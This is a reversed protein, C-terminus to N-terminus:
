RKNPQLEGFIGVIQTAFPADQLVEIQAYRDWGEGYVRADELATSPERTDMPTAPTRDSPREGNILPLISSALRAFVRIYRKQIGQQSGWQAGGELPLTLMKATYKPGATVTNGPSQLTITGGIVQVDPHTADDVTVGVTMGELHAFGPINDQIGVGAVTVHGDLYHAASYREVFKAPGGSTEYEAVTWIEDVGFLSTTAVTLVRGQTPHRAWGVIGQERNYSCTILENELRDVLWIIQDPERAYTMEKVRGRTIHESPWALDQSVWADETWRYSITRIKTESSAAYVVERGLELIQGALSGYGSQDEVGIDGPVIVGGESTVIFEAFETGVILSKSGSMWAIRGKKAITYELGDDALTGGTFNYYDNSKSGWFTTPEGATGGTWLRGQFFTAARPYNFGAWAAPPNTFAITAFTWVNSADVALEYPPRNPHWFTLANRTPHPEVFLADRAFDAWPSSWRALTPTPGPEQKVSVRDLVWGQVDLPAAAGLVRFVVWVFSVGTPTFQILQDYGATALTSGYDVAGFSSGVRVELQATPDSFPLLALDFRLDHVQTNDPIDISQGFEVVDGDASVELKVVERPDWEITAGGTIVSSWGNLAASFWGNYGLEIHEAGSYVLGSRDFVQVFSGGVACVFNQSVNIDLGFIRVDRDDAADGPKSIYQRGRRMNLPGHSDPLFNECISLGSAYRETGGRALLKPSIEGSEFSQQIPQLDAM